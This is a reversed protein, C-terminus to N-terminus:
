CSASHSQAYIQALAPAYAYRCLSRKLPTFRRCRSKRRCCLALRIKVHVLRTAGTVTPSAASIRSDPSRYRACMRIAVLQVIGSWRSAAVHLPRGTPFAADLSWVTHCEMLRRQSGGPMHQCKRSTAYLYTLRHLAYEILCWRGLRKRGIPTWPISCSSIKSENHSGCQM